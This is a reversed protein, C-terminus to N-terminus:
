PGPPSLAGALDRALDKCAAVVEPQEEFRRFKDPTIKFAAFEEPSMMMAPVGYQCTDGFGCVYCPPTFSNFYVSGVLRYYFYRELFERIEQVGREAEMAGVCVAAALKGLTRPQRHRLPYLRELFTHTLANLRGFYIVGGVLLLDAAVIRDLLPAMDDPQVCINGPACAVCGQCPAITLNALKVMEYRDGTDRLIKELMRQLNGQPQPSGNIALIM